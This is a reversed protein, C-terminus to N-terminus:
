SAAFPFQYAGCTSAARDMFDTATPPGLLNRLTASAAHRILCAARLTIMWSRPGIFRLKKVLHSLQGSLPGPEPAIPDVLEQHLAVPLHIPLSDVTEPLSFLHLDRSFLLSFATQWTAALVTTNPMARLLDVMRPRIAEEYVTGLRVHLSKILGAAAQM